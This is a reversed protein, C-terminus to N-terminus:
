KQEGHISNVIGSLFAPLDHTTHHIYDNKKKFEAQDTHRTSSTILVTTMGMAHPAELNESLDEFFAARTGDVAFQNAFKDYPGRAPKPIYDSDVIDFVGEFYDEVGLRKMVRSAHDATGNTFVLKRGPLRSLARQLTADNAVATYDIDHVYELFDTPEMAHELMLGRLTTGHKLYYERRLRLAEDHNVNLRLRIFESMRVHMQDFLKCSAPYLTNDLDFVWTNIHGFGSM